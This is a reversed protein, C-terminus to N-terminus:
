EGRQPDVMREGEREKKKKKEFLNNFGNSWELINFNIAYALLFLVCFFLTCGSYFLQM